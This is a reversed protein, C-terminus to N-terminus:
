PNPPPAAGAADLAAKVAQGLPKRDEPFGQNPFPTANQIFSWFQPYFLDQRAEAQRYFDANAQLLYRPIAGPPADQSFAILTRTSVRTMYLIFANARNRCGGTCHRNVVLVDVFMVPHSGGGLPASIVSPKQAPRATLIYFLRETYGIFGNARGAAFAAEASTNDHFTGDLCPNANAPPSGACSRVLPQWLSMTAADVPPVYADALKAADNTDAWADLYVSPLTWSGAYDGVLPTAPSISTLLSLLSRADRVGALGPDYSYVVNSCLYTPVGFHQGSVSAATWAVPLIGPPEVSAPQVWGNKVLDGLTLSDVELVDAADPGEGLLTELRGGPALDFLDVNPDITIRARVGPTETEFQRTLAATLAAFNDNASDPIYGFLVAKLTAAAGPTAAPPPQASGAAAIPHPTSGACAACLLAAASAISVSSVHRFVSRLQRM